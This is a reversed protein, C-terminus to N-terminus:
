EPRFPLFLIGPRLNRLTIGVGINDDQPGSGLTNIKDERDGRPVVVPGWTIAEKYFASEM